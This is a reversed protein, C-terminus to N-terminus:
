WSRPFLSFANLASRPCRFSCRTPKGDASASAWLAYVDAVLSQGQASSFVLNAEDAGVGTMGELRLTFAATNGVESHTVEIGKIHVGFLSAVAAVYKQALGAVDTGASHVHM